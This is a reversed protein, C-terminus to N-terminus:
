PDHKRRAFTRIEEALSLRAKLECVLAAKGEVKIDRTWMHQVHVIYSASM